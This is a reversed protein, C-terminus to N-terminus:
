PQLAQRLLDLKTERRADIAGFRTQVVCGGRSVESSGKVRVRQTPDATQLLSSNVQQLLALDESNVLVTFETEEEVQAMAQRVSAEILEASIPLGDVLRTAAELAIQVLVQECEGAVRSLTQSLSSFVGQQLQILEQRQRILQESLAKEGEIRGRDYAAKERWALQQEWDEIRWAEAMRVERLPQAFRISEHWPKM